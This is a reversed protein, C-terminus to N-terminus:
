SGTSSTSTPKTSSSRWATTRATETPSAPTESSTPTRPRPPSPAVERLDYRLFGYYGQVETVFSGDGLKKASRVPHECVGSDMEHGQKTTITVFDGKASMPEMRRIPVDVRRKKEKASVPLLLDRWHTRLLDRSSFDAAITSLDANKRLGLFRCHDSPGHLGIESVLMPQRQDPYHMNVLQGAVLLHAFAESPDSGGIAPYTELAKPPFHPDEKAGVAGLAYWAGNPQDLGLIIGPYGDLKVNRSAAWPGRAFADHKALYEEWHKGLRAAVLPEHRADELSLPTMFPFAYRGRIGDLDVVSVPGYAGSELKLFEARPIRVGGDEHDGRPKCRGYAALTGERTALPGVGHAVILIATGGKSIGAYEASATTMYSDWATRKRRVDPEVALRADIVDPLTAVRGGPGAFREADAWGKSMDGTVFTLGGVCQGQAM